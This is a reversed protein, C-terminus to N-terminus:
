DEDEDGDDVNDGGDVDDDEAESGSHEDARAGPVADAIEDRALVEEAWERTPPPLREAHRKLAVAVFEFMTGKRGDLLGDPKLKPLHGLGYFIRLCALPTRRLKCLRWTATPAPAPDLDKDPIEYEDLDPLGDEDDVDAEAPAEDSQGRYILSAGVERPLPVCAALRQVAEFGEAGPRLEQESFAGALCSLLIAAAPSEFFPPGKLLINLVTWSVEKL